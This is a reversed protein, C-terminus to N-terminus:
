RIQPTKPFYANAASEVLTDLVTQLDFASRSIVKLVESTASQQERAEALECALRALKTDKSSVSLRRNRAPKSATGRNAKITQQAKAPKRNKARRRRM